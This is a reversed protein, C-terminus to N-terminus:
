VIGTAPGKAPPFRAERPVPAGYRPELRVDLGQAKAERFIEQLRARPVIVMQRDLDGHEVFRRMWASRGAYMQENVKRRDIVFAREQDLMDHGYLDFAGSSPTMKPLQDWIARLKEATLTNPPTQAGGADSDMNLIRNIGTGLNYGRFKPDTEAM